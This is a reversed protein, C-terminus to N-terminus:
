ALSINIFVYSIITSLKSYHSIPDLYLKPFQDFISKTKLFENFKHNNTDILYLIKTSNREIIVNFLCFFSLLPIIIM